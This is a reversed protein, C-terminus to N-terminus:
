EELGSAAIAAPKRPQTCPRISVSWCKRVVERPMTAIEEGGYRYVKAGPLSDGICAVIRELAKDGAVHGYHDNYAKFFDVDFLALSVTVGNKEVADLAKELDQDFARRNFAGTLGDRLSREALQQNALELEITRETVLHELRNMISDVQGAMFQFSRALM